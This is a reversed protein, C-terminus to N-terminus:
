RAASAAAGDRNPEPAICNSCIVLKRKLRTEEDQDAAQQKEWNDRPQFAGNQQGAAAGLPRVIVEKKSRMKDPRLEIPQSDEAPASGLGDWAM